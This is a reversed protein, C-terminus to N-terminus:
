IPMPLKMEYQNLLFEFGASQLFQRMGIDAHDMNVAKVRIYQSGLTNQLEALLATGVKQRRYAPAVALNLLWTSSPLYALSGILADEAFAGLTIAEDPIRRISALSNEWCPPWDFFGAAQFLDSREIPRITFPFGEPRSLPSAEAPMGFTDMEREISFGTKEYARVGAQNSQIVELYFNEVGKERLKPLAYEFIAKALGKGRHAKIIGTMADFASPGGKYEDLAIMTFGVLEGQHFVGVSTNYDVGGRTFRDVFAPETVHSVDQVYDSFAALFTQYLLHTDVGTLHKFEYAM